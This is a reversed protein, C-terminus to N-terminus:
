GILCELMDRNVQKDKSVTRVNCNPFTTQFAGEGLPSWVITRDGGGDKLSQGQCPTLAGSSVQEM